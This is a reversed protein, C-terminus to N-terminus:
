FPNNGEEATFDMMNDDDNKTSDSSDYEENGRYQGYQSLTKDVEDQTVVGDGDIDFDDGIQRMTEDDVGYDAFAGETFEITSVGENDFIEDAEIDSLDMKTVDFISSEDENQSNERASKVKELQSPSLSRIENINGMNDDKRQAGYKTNRSLNSFVKNKTVFRLLIYM